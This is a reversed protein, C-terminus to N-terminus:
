EIGLEKKVLPMVNQAKDSKYLVVSGEQTDFIFLFNNKKGVNDIANKVKTIVPELLKAQKTQAETYLTQQANQLRKVMEQLEEEQVKQVTESMTAKEKEFKLYKDNIEKEMEQLYKTNQANFDAMEKEIESLEPMMMMAERSDIYGFKVEQAVISLPLFFLAALSIKKLM